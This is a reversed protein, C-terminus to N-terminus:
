QAPATMVREVRDEGRALNVSGFLGPGDEILRGAAAGDAIEKRKRDQGGLEATEHFAVM